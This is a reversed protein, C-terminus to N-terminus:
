TAVAERKSKESLKSSKEKSPTLWAADIDLLNDCFNRFSLHSATKVQGNKLYALCFPSPISKANRSM